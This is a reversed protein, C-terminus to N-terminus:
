RRAISKIQEIYAEPLEHKRAGNLIHNLYEDSPRSEAIVFDEGAIYAIASFISGDDVIVEVSKRYYHGGSVGECKDLKEMAGQGCLYTVGWVRDGESPIINAYIEGPKSARKNFALRFDPLFCRVAQRIRGTREEMRARSLNSGYAFYWVDENVVAEMNIRM